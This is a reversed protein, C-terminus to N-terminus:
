VRNKVRGALGTNDGLTPRLAVDIFLKEGKLERVIRRLRRREASSLIKGGYIAAGYLDAFERCLPHGTVDALHQLGIAAPLKKVRGCQAVRRLYSQVLTEQRRKRWLVVLALAVILLVAPWLTVGPVTLDPRPVRSLLNSTERVLQFQQQLDYNVVTRTWYHYLADVLHRLFLRNRSGGALFAQEANVAFRSPDIRQWVGDDDLAEVWVHAQDEGVQFFGGFPNYTGGLYGGALRAPVGLLRLMYAYSAAFYECYGQRSDFLFTEMPSDTLPLDQVSYSLGQDFFFATLAAVKEDYSRAQRAIVDVARRIRPPVPESLALYAGSDGAMRVTADLQARGRYSIKKRAPDRRSFVGDGASRHSTGELDTTRDLTVLFRDGRPEAYITYDLWEGPGQLLSDSGVAARRQWSNGDLHDLVIARWYLQEAPVEAMDARFAVTGSSALEAFSGPEVRESMGALAAPAAGIVSWLPVPTRPLILFLGAMLVLTAVPVLYLYRRLGAFALRSLRIGPDERVFCLLILGCGLLVIMSVLYLLYLLDLTLLSAAALITMSLLYAQLLNRPSKEGVLRVVLLACLIHMLPEVVHRLSFQPLMVVITTVAALVTAPVVGPINGRLDRIVGVLLGAGVLLQLWPALSPLVPLVAIVAALYLILHLRRNLRTM